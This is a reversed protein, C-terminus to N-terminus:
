RKVGFKQVGLTTLGGVDKLTMLGAKSFLYETGDPIEVVFMETEGIPRALDLRIGANALTAAVHMLGMEM